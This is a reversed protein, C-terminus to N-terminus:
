LMFLNIYLNFANYINKIYIKKKKVNFKKLHNFIKILIFKKRNLIYILM